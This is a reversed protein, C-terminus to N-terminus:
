KGLSGDESLHQIACSDFPFFIEMHCIAHSDGAAVKAKAWLWTVLVSSPSPWFSLCPNSLHRPLPCLYVEEAYAFIRTYGAAGTLIRRLLVVCRNAYVYALLFPDKETTPAYVAKMFGTMKTPPPDEEGGRHYFPPNLQPFRRHTPRDEEEEANCNLPPPATGRGTRWQDFGREGWTPLSFAVKRYRFDSFDEEEEEEGEGKGRGREQGRWSQGVPTSKKFVCFYISSM